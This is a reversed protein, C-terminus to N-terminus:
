KARSGSTLMRLVDATGALSPVAWDAGAEQLETVSFRGTAVALVRLESAKACAIDQPTDGIIWTEDPAFRIGTETFAREIAIPPLENRDAADSGFAGFLFRGGLGCADLKGHAGGAINGTVLGVTAGTHDLADLLTSVGPYARMDARRTVLENELGCLYSGWLADLGLDISREDVGAASLLTCAIQPDTLGDFPLEAIPGATGYVEVMANELAARGAGGAHVLTGDIDFLVLM